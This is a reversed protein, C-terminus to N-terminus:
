QAHSEIRIAEPEKGGSPVEGICHFSDSIKTNRGECAM